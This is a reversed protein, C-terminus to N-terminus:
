GNNYILCFVHEDGDDRTDAAAAATLAEPDFDEAFLLDVFVDVSASALAPAVEVLDEERLDDPRNIDVPNPVSTQAVVSQPSPM